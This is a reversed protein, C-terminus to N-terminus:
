MHYQRILSFFVRDCSFQFSTFHIQHAILIQVLKLASFITCPETALTYPSTIKYMFNSVIKHHQDRILGSCTSSEDSTFYSSTINLLVM